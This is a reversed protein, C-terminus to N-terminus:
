FTVLRKPLHGSDGVLFASVTGDPHCMIWTISCHTLAIRMWAAPPLQLARLLLFRLINGHAVLLDYTQFKMSSSHRYFYKRFTSEMRPGDIHYSREDMKFHTLLPIPEVPGGERLGDDSKANAWNLTQHIIEATEQARPMSSYYINSFHQKIDKLRLATLNAQQRGLDTLRGTKRDFQGHRILFVNRTVTIKGNTKKNEKKRIIM